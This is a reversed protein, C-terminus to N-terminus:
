KKKEKLINNKGLEYAKDALNLFVTSLEVFITYSISSELFLTKIYSLGREKIDSLDKM